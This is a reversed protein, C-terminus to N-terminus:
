YADSRIFAGSVYIGLASTLQSAAAGQYATLIGSGPWYILGFSMWFGGYMSFALDHM